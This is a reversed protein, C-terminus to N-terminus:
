SITIIVNNLTNREIDTVQDSLTIVVTTNQPSVLKSGFGIQLNDGDSLTINVTDGNDIPDLFTLVIVTVDPADDLYMGMMTKGSDDIIKLLTIKNVEIPSDLSNASGQSTFLVVGLISLVIFGLMMNRM